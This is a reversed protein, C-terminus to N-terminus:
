GFNSSTFPVLSSHGLVEVSDWARQPFCLLSLTLDGLNQSQIQEWSAVQVIRSAEKLKHIRYNQSISHRSHM